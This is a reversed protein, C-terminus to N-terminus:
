EYIQDHSVKYDFQKENNVGTKINHNAGNDLLLSVVQEHGEKVALHLATYGNKTTADCSAGNQLLLRVSETNGLRASM